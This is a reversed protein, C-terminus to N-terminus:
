GNPFELENLIDSAHRSALGVDDPTNVNFLCWREPDLAEIMADPVITCDLTTLFHGLSRKGSAFVSEAASLCRRHYVAHFPEVRPGTVIATVDSEADLAIMQRALAINVFPMDCALFLCRDHRISRLGTMLGGLPGAGPTEDPIYRAGSTVVGPERGVVLIDRSLLAAADLVRDVMSIPNDADLVLKAKDQGMRRSGGGALVIVSIKREEM